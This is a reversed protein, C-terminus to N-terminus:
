LITKTVHTTAATKLAPIYERRVEQQGQPSYLLEKDVVCIAGLKKAKREIPSNVKAITSCIVVPVPKFRMIKELFDLGDMKPMIIDLSIVDPELELIKDRAEFADAAEGAVEFGPVSEILKRLIKRAIQCDDVILVRINRDSIDKRHTGIPRVVVEFTKTNFYIKRGHKGGVDSEVIPIGFKQLTHKAMAINTDGIGAGIGLHGVVAGGGFIKAEYHDTRADMNLLSTVIYSIATDGYKGKPEAPSPHRDRLFHNMAAAGNHRNYICVAVCSGLLTAMFMPESAVCLEGPLLFVRELGKPAIVEDEMKM